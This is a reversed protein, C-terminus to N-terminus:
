VSPCSSPSARDWFLADEPNMLYLSQWNHDDLTATVASLLIDFHWASLFHSFVSNMHFHGTCQICQTDQHCRQLSWDVAEQLCM